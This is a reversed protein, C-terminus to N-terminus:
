AATVVRHEHVVLLQGSVSADGDVRQHIGVYYRDEGGAVVAVAKLLRPRDRQDALFRRVDDDGVVSVASVRELRVPVGQMWPALYPRESVVGGAGVSGAQQQDLRGIWCCGGGPDGLPDGTTRNESTPHAFVARQM